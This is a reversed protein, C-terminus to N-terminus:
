ATLKRMVDESEVSSYSPIEPVLRGKLWWYIVEHYIDNEKCRQQLYRQNNSLPSSFEIQRNGDESEFLYVFVPFQPPGLRGSPRAIMLKFKAVARFKESPAVARYILARLKFFLARM